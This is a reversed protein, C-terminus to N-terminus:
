AKGNSDEKEGATEPLSTSPALAPPEVWMWHSPDEHNWFSTKGWAKGTFLIV